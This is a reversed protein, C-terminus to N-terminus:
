EMQHQPRSHTPAIGGRGGLANTAHVPVTKAKLKRLLFHSQILSFTVHLFIIFQAFLVCIHEPFYTSLNKTIPGLIRPDLGPRPRHIKLASLFGLVGEKLPSTFGSSGHRLTKRSKFLWKFYLLSVEFAYNIEKVLEEAKSTSSEKPLIKM